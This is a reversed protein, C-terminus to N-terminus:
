RLLTAPSPAHDDRSAGRRAGRSPSAQSPHRWNDRRCPRVFGNRLMLALLLSALRSRGPTRMGGVSRPVLRIEGADHLRRLVTHIAALENAYVSLDVGIAALRDRVETPTMPVGGGRLAMRCADTLGLPVTPTMGLLRTLTGITQALQALRDDIERRRSALAEYEEVAATLAARYDELTM